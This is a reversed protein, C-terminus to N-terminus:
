DPQHNWIYTLEQENPHKQFINTHTAVAKGTSKLRAQTNTKMAYVM